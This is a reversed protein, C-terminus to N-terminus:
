CPFALNSISAEAKQVRNAFLLPRCEIIGSKQDYSDGEKVTVNIHVDTFSTM